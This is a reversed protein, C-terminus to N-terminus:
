IALKKVILELLYGLIYSPIRTKKKKKKGVEMDPM